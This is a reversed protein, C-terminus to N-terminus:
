PIAEYGVIAFDLDTGLGLSYGAVFVASGDASVDLAQSVDTSNGPGNYRAVRLQSGDSTDYTVTAFDAATGAGASQGTVIVRSGDPNMGLAWAVDFGNIPNYTSIREESGDSTDYALTVFDPGTGAGTSQGTVVARSGDPSIVLPKRLTAEMAPGM